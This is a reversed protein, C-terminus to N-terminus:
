KYDSVNRQKPKRNLVINQTPILHNIHNWNLKVQWITYHLWPILTPSAHNAKASESASQALLIKYSDVLLLHIKLFMVWIKAQSKLLCTKGTLWNHSCLWKVGCRSYNNLLCGCLYWTQKSNNWALFVLDESLSNWPNPFFKTANRNTQAIHAILGRSKIM